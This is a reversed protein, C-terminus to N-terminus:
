KIKQVEPQDILEPFLEELRRIASEYCEIAKSTTRGGMTTKQNLRIYNERINYLQNRYHRVRQLCDIDEINSM